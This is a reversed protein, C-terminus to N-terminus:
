VRRCESGVWVSPCYRDPTGEFRLQNPVGGSFDWVPNRQDVWKPRVIKRWVPSDLWCWVHRVPAGTLPRQRVSGIPWNRDNLPDDEIANGPEELSM